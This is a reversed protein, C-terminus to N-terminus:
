KLSYIGGDRVIREINSNVADLKRSVVDIVEEHKTILMENKEELESIRNALSDFKM